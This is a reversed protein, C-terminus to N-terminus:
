GYSKTIKLYLSTKTWSKIQNEPMFYDFILLSNGFDLDHKKSIRDHGLSYKKQCSLIIQETGGLPV